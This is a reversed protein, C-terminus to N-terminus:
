NILLKKLPTAISSNWFRNEVFSIQSEVTGYGLNKLAENTRTLWDLNGEKSACAKVIINAMISYESYYKYCLEMDVNSKKSMVLTAADIIHLSQDQQKFIQKVRDSLRSAREWDGLKFGAYASATGLVHQRKYM